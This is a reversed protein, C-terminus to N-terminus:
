GVRGIAEVYAAELNAMSTEWDLTEVVHRRGAEAMRKWLGRDALLRLVAKAFSRVDDAVAVAADPDAGVGENGLATTVVPRGAAMPQAVKILLGGGILSPSVAVDTQAWERVLDQVFGTVVLRPDRGAQRDLWRPPNAGVIYLAARPHVQVQPWVDRVLFAVAAENAVRDLAGVFTLRGPVVTESDVNLMTDLDVWPAVIHIRTEEVFRALHAKDAASSALTVHAQKVYRREGEILHRARRAAQLRKWGWPHSQVERPRVRYEVDLTGLVTAMGAPVAWLYRGMETWALHVVDIRNERCISRIRARAEAHTRRGWMWPRRWETSLVREAKQRWTYAPRLVHVLECHAALTEVQSKSEGRGYCVVHVSHGREALSRITHFLHQGGGHAIQAHPLWPSVILVRM